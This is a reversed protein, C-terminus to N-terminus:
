AGRRFILQVLSIILGGSLPYLILYKVYVGPGTLFSYDWMILKIIIRALMQPLHVLVTIGGKFFGEDSLTQVINFGIAQNAINTGENYIRTGAIHSDAETDKCGRTLGTFSTDTKGSYCVIESDINFHDAGLWGATADVTFTADDADVNAQLTATALGTVGELTFSLVMANLVAFLFFMMLNTM